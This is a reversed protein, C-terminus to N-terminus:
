STVQRRSEHRKIFKRARSLNDARVQIKIPVAHAGAIGAQHACDLFSPIEEAQLANQIIEAQVLNPLTCVTVLDDADRDPQSKDRKGWAVATKSEPPAANVTLVPCSAKRLVAEAVSGVLLRSLGRRGHTGLVILSCNEDAAAKLIEAPVDGDKVEFLVTGTFNSPLSRQMKEKLLEVPEPPEPPLSAFEGVISELPPRVHLLVVAASHDRALSCAIPLAAQSCASFDIPCLIRTFQLM